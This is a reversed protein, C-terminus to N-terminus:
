AVVPTGVNTRMRCHLALVIAGLGWLVIALRFLPGAYPLVTLARVIGLGIALRGATHGIGAEPGLLKEGFWESVFIQATFLAVIYSLFTTIGVALGVITVCAIAVAIPTAILCIAGFGFAPGIRRASSVASLFFAPAAL